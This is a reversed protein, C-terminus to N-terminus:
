NWDGSQEHKSREEEALRRIKYASDRIVGYLMICSDDESSASGEDSVVIMDKVLDLVKIINDNCDKM